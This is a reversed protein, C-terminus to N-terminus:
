NNKNLFALKCNKFSFYLMKTKKVAYFFLHGNRTVKLYKKILRNKKRLIQCNLGM